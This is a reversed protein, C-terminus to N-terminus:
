GTYGRSRTCTACAAPYAEDAKRNENIGYLTGAAAGLLGGIAAGKGAGRGDPPAAGLVVPRRSPSM